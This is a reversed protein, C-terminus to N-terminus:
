ILKIYNKIKNEKIISDTNPKITDGSSGNGRGSSSSIYSPNRKRARSVASENILRSWSVIDKTNSEIDETDEKCRYAVKRTNLAM